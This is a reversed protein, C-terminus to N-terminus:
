RNLPLKVARKTKASKYIGLIIEVAKRGEVGPVLPSRGERIADVMDQFQRRHGEHKIERAGAGGGVDSASFKARIAEDEPKEDAFKWCAIRDDELIVTGRDGSLEIRKAFGPLAATTGEIVGLAGSKFRLSAVAVDEVEIRKHARTATLATIESPMGALWQLLDIAHISQNMLAGGGDMEWTGRWGGSDYYNQDRWWKIYADCLTLKGLRGQEVARKVTQAGEGFRSQFIGAFKVRHRKAAALMADIRKLTIELPKECVIHKRARAADIAIEAHAGSPTAICVVDLDDRALMKRYDTFSACNYQEALARVKQENRSAVGILRAGTVETLASAHVGGIYGCGVIGFGLSRM